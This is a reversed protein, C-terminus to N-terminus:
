STLEDLRGTTLSHTSPYSQHVGLNRVTPAAPPPVCESPPVSDPIRTAARHNDKMVTRSNVNNDFCPFSSLGQMNPCVYDWRSISVEKMPPNMLRTPESRIEKCERMPPAKYNLAEDPRDRSCWKRYQGNNLGRMYNSVQMDPFIEQPHPDCFSKCAIPKGTVASTGNM